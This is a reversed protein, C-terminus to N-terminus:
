ADWYGTIHRVSTIGGPASNKVYATITGWGSSLSSCDLSSITDPDWLLDGTHTREAYATTTGDSVEIKTTGTYSVSDVCQEFKFFMDTPNNPIWVHFKCAAQYTQGTKSYGSAYSDQCALTRGKANEVLPSDVGDHVHGGDTRAKNIDYLILYEDGSRVGDTYLTDGTCTISTAANDDITYLNGAANGSLIFLTRGIQADATLGAATDTLVTETPDSTASGSIGTGFALEIIIEIGKRLKDMLAQSVPSNGDTSSKLAFSVASLPNDFLSATM